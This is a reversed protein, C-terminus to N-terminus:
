AGLSRWPAACGWGPSCGGACFTGTIYSASMAFMLLGYGHPELGLVQIFTFSSAALFTFLGATPRSLSCRTPRFPPHRLIQVWSRALQAPGCRGAIPGAGPNRGPAACWRWRSPALRPWRWWPPAGAWTCDTLLGGLPPSLCAIVGLGTLGKSMVHAGEAPQYLDRVLARATMVGAGMAVGQVARWAILAEM